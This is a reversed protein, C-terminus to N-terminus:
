LVDLCIYHHTFQNKDIILSKLSNITGTKHEKQQHTRKYRIKSWNKLDFVMSM